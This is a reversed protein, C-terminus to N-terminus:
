LLSKQRYKDNLGQGNLIMPVIKEIRAKQTEERKASEIYELFEYQKYASFQAFAKLLIADADLAQQLLPSILQEKKQPKSTKGSKEKTIAEAIYQLILSENVEEKTYFRWQRLSKTVGEQANVLM